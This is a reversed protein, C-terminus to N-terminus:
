QTQDEACVPFFRAHRCMTAIGTRPSLSLCNHPSSPWALVGFLNQSLAQRLFYLLCVISSSFRTDTQRDKDKERVCM